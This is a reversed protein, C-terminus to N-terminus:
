FEFNLTLGCQAEKLSTVVFVGNGGGGKKGLVFFYLDYYWRAIARFAIKFKVDNINFFAYITNFWKLHLYDFDM